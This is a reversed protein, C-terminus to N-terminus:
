STFPQELERYQYRNLSKMCNTLEVRIDHAKEPPWKTFAITWTM